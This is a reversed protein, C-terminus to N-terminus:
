LLFGHFQGGLVPVVSALGRPREVIELALGLVRVPVALVSDALGAWQRVKLRHGVLDTVQQLRDVREVHQRDRRAVPDEAIERNRAFDRHEDRGRAGAFRGKRERDGRAFDGAARQEADIGLAGPGHRDPVVFVVHVLQVAAQGRHHLM